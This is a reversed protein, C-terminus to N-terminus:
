GVVIFGIVSVGKTESGKDSCCCIGYGSEGEYNCFEGMEGGHIEAGWGVIGFIVIGM